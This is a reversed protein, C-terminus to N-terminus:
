LVEPSKERKGIFISDLLWSNKEKKKERYLEEKRGTKKQSDRSVEKEGRV